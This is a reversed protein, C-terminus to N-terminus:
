ASQLLDDMLDPRARYMEESLVKTRPIDIFFQTGKGVESDFTIQGGMAEILRKSIPMGLGTGKQHTDVSGVTEFENFVKGMKDKPIGKGSDAIFVRVFDGHEAFSVKVFGNTNNFKIANNIVNSIVQGLRLEDFYAQAAFKPKILELKVQKAGAMQEFHSLKTELLKFLDAEQVYLDLKGAQIKAMDLIDNVIEMLHKAEDYMSAIFENLQEETDYLKNALVDLTAVIASLPTRLEHTTLAMFKDKAKDLAKLQENQGLVESYMSELNEQKVLLERELKKEFTADEFMLVCYKGDLGHLHQVHMRAIFVRSTKKKMWVDAHYGHVALLDINFSAYQEM